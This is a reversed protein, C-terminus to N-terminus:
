MFSVNERQIQYLVPIVVARAAPSSRQIFHTKEYKLNEQDGPQSYLPSLNKFYQKRLNYTM